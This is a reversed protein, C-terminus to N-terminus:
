ESGLPGLPVTSQCQKSVSTTTGSSMHVRAYGAAGGCALGFSYAERLEDKTLFPLRAWDSTRHLDGPGGTGLRKAYAPNERCRALTWRMRDLTLREIAEREMTEQRPQWM